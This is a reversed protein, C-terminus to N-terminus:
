SLDSPKGLLWLLQQTLHIQARQWHALTREWDPGGVDQASM